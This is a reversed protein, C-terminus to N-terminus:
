LLSSFFSDHMVLKDNVLYEIEAMLNRTRPHIFSSSLRNLGVQELLLHGQDLEPCGPPQISSIRSKSRFIQILFSKSRQSINNGSVNSVQDVDNNM